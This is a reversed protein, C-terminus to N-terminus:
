KIKDGPSDSERGHRDRKDTQQYGDSPRIDDAKRGFVAYIYHM